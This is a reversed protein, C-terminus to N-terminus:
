MRVFPTVPAPFMLCEGGCSKPATECAQLFKDRCERNNMMHTHGLSVTRFLSGCNICKGVIRGSEDRATFLDFACKLNSEIM